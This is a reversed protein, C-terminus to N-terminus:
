PPTQKEYKVMGTGTIPTEIDDKTTEGNINITDILSKEKLYLIADGGAGDTITELNPLFITSALILSNGGIEELDPASVKGALAFISNDAIIGNLVIESEADTDAVIFATYALDTYPYLVDDSGTYAPYTFSGNDIDGPFYAIRPDDDNLPIEFRYDNSGLLDFDNSMNNEIGLEVYTAKPAYVYATTGLGLNISEANPLNIGGLGAFIAPGFVVDFDSDFNTLEGFTESVIRVPIQLGSFDVTKTEVFHGATNNSLAITGFNYTSLEGSLGGILQTIITGLIGDANYNYDTLGNVQRLNPYIFDGQYDLFMGGTVTLAEDQVAAGKLVYMGGVNVLSSLPLGELDTNIYVSRTVV